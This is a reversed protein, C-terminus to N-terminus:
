SVLELPKFVNSYELEFRDMTLTSRELSQIPISPTGLIYESGSCLTIKLISAPIPGISEKLRANINTSFYVGSSDQKSSTELEGSAPHMPISMWEEVNVMVTGDAFTQFGILGHIPAYQISSIIKIAM